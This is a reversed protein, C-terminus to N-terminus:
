TSRKRVSVTRTDWRAKKMKAPPMGAKGETKELLPSPETAKQLTVNAKEEEKPMRSASSNDRRRTSPFGM